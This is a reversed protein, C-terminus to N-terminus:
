CSISREFEDKASWNKLAVSLLFRTQYWVRTCAVSETVSECHPHRCEPYRKWEDVRRCRKVMYLTQNGMPHVRKKLSINRGDALVMNTIQEPPRHEVTWLNFATGRESIIITSTLLRKAVPAAGARPFDEITMGMGLWVVEFMKDSCNRGMAVTEEASLNVSCAISLRKHETMIVTLGNLYLRVEFRNIRSTNEGDQANPNQFNLYSGWISCSHWKLNNRERRSPGGDEFEGFAQTRQM